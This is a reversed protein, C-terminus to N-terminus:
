RSCAPSPTPRSEPSTRTWRTPSSARWPLTCRQTRHDPDGSDAGLNYRFLASNGYVARLEALRIQDDFRSLPLVEIKNDVDAVGPIRKVVNEADSKLIPRTVKGALVVSNGKVQFSLEDFVSYYPLMVLEHRVQEDLTKAEKSAYVPSFAAMVTAMVALWTGKRCIGWITTKSVRDSNTTRM